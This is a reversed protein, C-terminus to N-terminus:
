VGHAAIFADSLLLRSRNRRRKLHRKQNRNRNPFVRAFRKKQEPTLLDNLGLTALKLQMRFKKKLQARQRRISKLEDLVESTPQEGKDYAARIEKIVLAAEAKKKNVQKKHDTKLSDVAEKMTKLQCLQKDTLKLVRVCEVAKQARIERGVFKLDQKMGTQTENLSLVLLLWSIGIM